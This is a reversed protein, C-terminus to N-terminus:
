VAKVIEIVKDKAIDEDIRHFDSDTLVALTENWDLGGREALRQLTQYHNKLAQAEHPQIISWPIFETGKLRWDHSLIPFQKETM